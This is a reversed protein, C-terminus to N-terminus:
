GIDHLMGQHIMQTVVGSLEWNKFACNKGSSLLTHDTVEWIREPDIICLDATQQPSLRGMPLKLIDAPKATIAEILRSLPLKGNKVLSLGLSLFVDITSMGPLSEAFPALKALAHLPRHDSCIGDILGTAVGELLAEKDRVTRLPPYLHCNPDFDNLDTETLFLHHMSVDATIPLSSKAEKLLEVAGRSSLCSFHARAGTQEILKLHTALACTEATEPIGPLGLRTAMAGEHAVGRHALSPEQPQIILLYGFSAAYEYCHRILGLDTIPKQGTTFAICGAATLGVLDAITHDTTHESAQTTLDGIPYIRAQETQQASPLWQSVTQPRDFRSEGNPPICLTTFGRKLAQATEVSLQSGYPHPLQPHCWLDVLGPIVWKGSADITRDAKFDTPCTGIAQITQDSIMVDTKTDIQSAPCIVRGGTIALNM